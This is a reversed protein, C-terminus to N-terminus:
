ASPQDRSSPTAARAVALVADIFWQRRENFRQTPASISYAAVVIGEDLVPAAACSVGAQFEEEDLAYGDHRIRQFERELRKFDTVTNPTLAKLPHAALYGTRLEESALALLLKGTARAHANAYPGLPLSVRVPHYGEVSAKMKIDGQSWMALYSTEGTTEALQRLPDLLYEPATLSRHLANALVAVKMGLVYRARSDRALLGEDVLTSLLHHATPAPLGAAQALGKGTPESAGTAVLLLLRAARAVSQVRGSRPHTGDGDSLNSKSM